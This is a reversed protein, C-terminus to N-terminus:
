GQGSTHASGRALSSLCAVTRSRDDDSGYPSGVFETAGADALQSISREIEAEDGVIAVDEPGGAQERDLMARYSPLQGYVAFRRSAHKRAAAVDSTVCVPLGVAVRPAPRGAAQASARITPVVHNAITAPGTMWTATGDAKRGALELMRPGLAALLVPPPPAEPIELSGLTAGSLVEGQFGARQGHLLPMLIELYERMYRLPRDFTQGFVNEILVQHSLGIGLQLRGAAAAQVTLAQAALMVPHRPYVPVVYTGLGIEPIERGLVALLTLADYAFVQSCWLTDFGATALSRADKVLSELPQASDLM